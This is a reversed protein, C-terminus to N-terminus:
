YDIERDIGAGYHFAHIKRNKRDILFVCFSTDQASNAKKLYYIPNGEADMEGGVEPWGIGYENYRGACVQPVAIYWLNSAGIQGYRFNHTHGNICCIIEARTGSTFDFSVSEGETATATGSGGSAYGDLITFAPVTGWNMPEHSLVVVGWQAPDDKDTFDLAPGALWRLQAASWMHERAQQAGSIDSSNLYIVRIRQAEFDKYGYGRQVQSSDVTCGINNAFIYSYLEDDTLDGDDTDYPNRDHNGQMWIQQVGLGAEYMAQHVFKLAGKSEAITASASGAVYDGFLGIFDLPLARRIQRIGLAAHSIAQATNADGDSADDYPYHIDSLAAFVLSQGTRKELVLEAVRAAEEVVYSPVAESQGTGSELTLIRGTHNVTTKELAIIRDEYDAPVFALGTNEWTYVTATSETIEENLAIVLDAGSDCVVDFRLYRIAGYTDYLAANGSDNMVPAIKYYDTDLQEITFLSTTSTMVQKYTKDAYYCAMRSMAGGKLYITPPQIGGSVTYAIMGTTTHGAKASDGGTGSSIYYGDRYGTDNYVATSDLAQSTPILNTCSYVTTEGGTCGYFYGDPLVYLQSRDTCEDVSSVFTPYRQLQSVIEPRLTEAVKDRIDTQDAETWYDTGKEPTSGAPIKLNLVPKKGTGTISAAAASGPEGTTVTGIQLEPVFAGSTLMTDVAGNLQTTLWTRMNVYDGSTVAGQSVDQAVHIRFPFTALSSEGRILEVQALVPGPATLVEPALLVTIVNGQVSWARTGDPMTDYMGGTGDSKYFCLKVMADTPVPWATGDDCLSIAVARTNTDGQVAEIRPTNERKKLDLNIESTLIM